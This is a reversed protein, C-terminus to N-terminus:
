KEAWSKGRLRSECLIEALTAFPRNVATLSPALEMLNALAIEADVAPLDGELFLKITALLDYLEPNM